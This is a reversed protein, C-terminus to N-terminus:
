NKIISKLIDENVQVPYKQKLDTIWKKELFNQYDSIAIGKIDDLKKPEAVFKKLINLVRYAEENQKKSATFIGTQDFFETLYENEGREFLGKSFSVNLPNKKNLLTAIEDASKKQKLMNAVDTAVSKDKCVYIEADVRDKWMYKDLNSKYYEELGITDNMAKSWVLKDTIDFLMMGEKYENVLFKFDPYKEELHLDAYILVSGGVYDDYLKKIMYPINSYKQSSQKEVIFKAFDLQTYSDKGIQFLVKSLKDPNNITWKGKLANSDLIKNFIALNKANEKFNNEIKIKAVASQQSLMSRSDRSVKNKITSEMEKYSSLAKLDLKQLIYWGDETKFPKCFDGNKQLKFAEVRIIEPIQFSFSNFEPLEGNKSKSRTDESYNKVMEAFSSGQTLKNYVSDIKMKAIDVKTTPDLPTNKIFIGAVKISGQYPRRDTVKLIHYGFQSRFPKSIQGVPTNFAVNEFSYILHFASFYGLDGKNTKVSPDESYQSALKEFDEGKIARNYAEEIKKYAILTDAPLADEALKILIHSSRLELQMRDYAEIMLKDTTTKDNLYPKTLQDRYSNFETQFSKATDVGLSKAEKVKLKFNIFLNLYEKVSSDKYYSKDTKNNKNYIYEFDALTVSENGITFLIAEPKQGFVNTSILLIILGIFLKSRKM